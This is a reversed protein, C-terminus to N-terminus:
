PETTIFVENMMMTKLDKYLPIRKIHDSQTM